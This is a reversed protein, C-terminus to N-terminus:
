APPLRRLGKRILKKQGFGPFNITLKAKEGDGERRVILGVGYKRIVFGPEL